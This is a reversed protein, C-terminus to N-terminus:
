RSALCSNAPRKRRVVDFDIIGMHQSAVAVAYDVAERKFAFSPADVFWGELIRFEIKWSM